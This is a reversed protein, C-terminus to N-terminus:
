SSSPPTPSARTGCRWCMGCRATAPASPLLALFAAFQGEDFHLFPAFQWLIPGLKEGLETVGSDLFREVSEGATSLDKRHTIFRSGKLSFVFDDPTDDHWRKYSAPKQLGYFTGNIEIATVHRSAHSLEDAQKLRRPPYFRAM